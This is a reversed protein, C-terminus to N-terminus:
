RARQQQQIALRRQLHVAPITADVSEMNTLEVGTAARYAHLYGQIEPRWYRAWNKASDEDNVNIWDGFRVSLLLQEGYVALDRFHTVTVDTWGQLAKMTDVQPMWPEKYPVMIRSQLFERMEPRALIFEALLTEVRATWTLNRFQNHAGQALILHVEKLSNLLPFGDAIVTTQFDEKFFKSSQLLLNHFAEVFKSRNDAPQMGATAKGFLALGYEHAYEAARRRVSLRNLEDQIYGWLLNNLPRLPDIEMNALADRETNARVNQFRYSIANMTQMLMGEELWYTHILEILCPESIRGTVLREHGDRELGPFAAEVVRTIYPLQPPKGLYEELKREMDQRTLPEGLRELDQGPDFRDRDRGSIRVGCESLLFAETAFKLIQYAGVGQLNVGGMDRSRRNVLDIFTKGEEWRLVSEMAERYRNFSIAHTRNRIAVWLAQDLTPDSATRHLTVGINGGIMQTEAAGVVVETSTDATPQGGDELSPGHVTGNIKFSGPQAFLYEAEYTDPTNHRLSIGPPSWQVSAIKCKREHDLQVVFPRGAMVRLAPVLRDHEARYTLPPSIVLNLNLDFDVRESQAEAGDAITIQHHLEPMEFANCRVVYTGPTEVPFRYEGTADTYHTLLLTEKARGTGTQHYLQVEAHIVSGVGNHTVRGYISKMQDAM